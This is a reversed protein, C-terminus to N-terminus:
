STDCQNLWIIEGACRCSSASSSASSSTTNRLEVEGALLARSFVMGEAEHHAAGIRAHLRRVRPGLGQRL